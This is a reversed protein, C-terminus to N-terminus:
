EYGTLAKPPKAEEGLDAATKGASNQKKKGKLKKEKTPHADRYEYLKSFRPDDRNSTFDKFLTAEIIGLLVDKNKGTAEGDPLLALFVAKLDGKNYTRINGEFVRQPVNAPTSESM